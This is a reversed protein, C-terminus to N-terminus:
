KACRSSVADRHVGSPYNKLYRDKARTCDAARGLVDYVQVLRAIADERFGSGPAIAVAKELAQAAGAYDRLSDMRLRGLEFAALGARADNPYRRLLADYTEAAQRLQGSRRLTNAHDLLERAGVQAGASPEPPAVPLQSVDLAPPEAAGPVDPEEKFSQGATLRMPGGGQRQSQVEVIGREVDVEVHPGSARAESIVTFKTGVVRVVVDGALVSFVRGPNKAVDCTVRGHRLALKVAAKGSEIVDIRTESALEIKSGDGLAVRSGDRETEFVAREFASPEANSSGGRGIAFWLAAAAAVAALGGGALVFRSVRAPKRGELREAVGNWLREVRADSIDPQVHRAPQDM